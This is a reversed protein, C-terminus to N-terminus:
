QVWNLSKKIVQLDQLINGDPETAIIFTMNM